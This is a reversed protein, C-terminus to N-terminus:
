KTEEDTSFWKKTYEKYKKFNTLNNISTYPIAINCGDYYSWGIFDVFKLEPFTDIIDEKFYNLEEGDTNDGQMAFWYSVSGEDILQLVYEGEYRDSGKAGLIFAKNRPVYAFSDGVEKLLKSVCECISIYDDELYKEEFDNDLEFDLIESYTWFNSVLSTGHQGDYILYTYPAEWKRVNVMEDPTLNIDKPNTISVGYESHYEANEEILDRILANYDCNPNKLFVEIGICTQVKKGDEERRKEGISRDQMDSWISETIKSLKKM